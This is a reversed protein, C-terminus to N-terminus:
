HMTVHGFPRGKWTILEQQTECYIHVYHISYSKCVLLENPQVNQLLNVIKLYMCRALSENELSVFNKIYSIFKWYNLTSNHFKESSM